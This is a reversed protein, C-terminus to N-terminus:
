TPKTGWFLEIGKWMYTTAGDVKGDFAKLLDQSSYYPAEFPNFGVRSSLKEIWTEIHIDLEALMKMRPSFTIEALVINRGPKLVRLLEAATESWDDSHQVAQLVAVCDFSESALQQSYEFQWTALQGGRGIRNQMYANRAEETIDVVVVDGTPGIRARIDDAFHCAEVMEGIILVRDNAQLACKEFVMHRVTKAKHVWMYPLSGALMVARCWRQQENQDTIIAGMRDIDSSQISAWPDTSSSQQM